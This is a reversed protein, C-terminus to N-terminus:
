FNGVHSLDKLIEAEKQTQARLSKLRNEDRKRKTLIRIKQIERDISVDQAKAPKQWRGFSTSDRTKFRRLDVVKCAYQTHSETDAAM